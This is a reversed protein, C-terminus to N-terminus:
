SMLLSCTNGQYCGQARSLPARAPGNCSGAAAEALPRPHSPCATARCSPALRFAGASARSVRVHEPARDAPEGASEDGAWESRNLYLLPSTYPVLERGDGYLATFVDVGVQIAACDFREGRERGSRM